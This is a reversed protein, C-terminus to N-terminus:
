STEITRMPAAANSEREVAPVMQEPHFDGAAPPPRLRARKPPKEAYAALQESTGAAVIQGTGNDNAPTRGAAEIASLVDERRGGLVATMGTETHAAADAMGRGREAVLSLADESTLVGALAAATFEGVSHCAVADVSSPNV